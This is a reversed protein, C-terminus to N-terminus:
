AAKCAAVFEAFDQPEVESVRSAGFRGLIEAGTEVGKAAALDQLATRADILTLHSALSDSQEATSPVYTARM